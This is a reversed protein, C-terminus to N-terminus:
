GLSLKKSNLISKNNLQGTTEDIAFTYEAGKEEILIIKRGDVYKVFFIHENISTDTPADIQLIDGIQINLKNENENETENSM